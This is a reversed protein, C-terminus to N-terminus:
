SPIGRSKPRCRSRPGDYRAPVSLASRGAQDSAVVAGLEGRVCYQGPAFLYAHGPVDDCRDLRHLLTDALGEFGLHWVLKKFPFGNRLRSWARLM